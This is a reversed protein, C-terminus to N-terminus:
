FGSLKPPWIRRKYFNCPFFQYPHGKQGGDQIPNLAVEFAGEQADKHLSSLADNSASELTGEPAGRSQVTLHIMLHLIFFMKEKVNKYM